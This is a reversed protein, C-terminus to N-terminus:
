TVSASSLTKVTYICVSIGFTALIYTTNKSCAAKRDLIIVMHLQQLMTLMSWNLSFLSPSYEFM